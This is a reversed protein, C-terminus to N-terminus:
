AINHERGRQSLFEAIKQRLDAIEKLLTEKPKDKDNM